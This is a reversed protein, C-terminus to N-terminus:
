PKAVPKEPPQWLKREPADAPLTKVEGDACSLRQGATIRRSPQSVKSESLTGFLVSIGKGATFVWVTDPKDGARGTVLTV